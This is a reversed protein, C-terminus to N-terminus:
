FYKLLKTSFAILGKTKPLFFQSNEPEGLPASAKQM